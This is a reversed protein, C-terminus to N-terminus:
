PPLVHHNRSPRPVAVLSPSSCAGGVQVLPGGRLPRRVPPASLPPQRCPQRPQGRPSGAGPDDRRGCPDDSVGRGQADANLPPANLRARPCFGAMSQDGAASASRPRTATTAPAVRPAPRRDVRTLEGELIAERVQVPRLGIDPPVDLLDPLVVELRIEGVVPLELPEPREMAPQRDTSQAFETPPSPLSRPPDM